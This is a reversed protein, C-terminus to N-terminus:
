FELFSAATIYATRKNGDVFYQNHNFYAYICCSKKM